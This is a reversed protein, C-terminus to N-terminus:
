THALKKLDAEEMALDYKIDLTANVRILIYIM